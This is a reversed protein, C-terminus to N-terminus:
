LELLGPPPDIVLVGDDSDVVFALPVLAGSDLVLLDSAPNAEVAEVMGLEAGDVGRVRAGVLEHVWVADPDALADAELTAGRLGEADQKDDIGELRVIFRHQHPRAADVTRRVGDVFLPSGPELRELRNTTLTVVVEGRLGHPKDVRGVELRRSGEM